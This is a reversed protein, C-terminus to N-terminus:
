PTSALLLLGISSVYLSLGVVLLGLSRSYVRTKEDRRDIAFRIANELGCPAMQTTWRVRLIGMMTFAAAVLVFVLGLVLLWAALRGSHAISAGSFGTVTITIGALSLLTQARNALISLQGDLRSLIAVADGAYLGMLHEVEQEQTVSV